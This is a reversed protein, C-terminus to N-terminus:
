TTEEKEKVPTRLAKVIPVRLKDNEEQNLRTQSLLNIIINAQEQTLEYKM